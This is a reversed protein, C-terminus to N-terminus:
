SQLLETTANLAAVTDQAIVATIYQSQAFRLHIHCCLSMVFAEISQLCVSTIKHALCGAHICDV